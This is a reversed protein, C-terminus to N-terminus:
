AGGKLAEAAGLLAPTKAHIIYSPVAALYQSFRGKEEFRQRFSSLDFFEGLTPVIGGGIYVGGRAGLALVRNAAATGLMACFTHLVETCVLGGGRSSRTSMEAPVLGEPRRGRLV